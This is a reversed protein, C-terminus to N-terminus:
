DGASKGEDEPDWAKEARGTDITAADVEDDIIRLGGRGRIADKEQKSSKKRRKKKGDGNAGALNVANQFRFGCWM